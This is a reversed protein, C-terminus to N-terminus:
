EGSERGRMGRGKSNQEPQEAVVAGQQARGNGVVGVM